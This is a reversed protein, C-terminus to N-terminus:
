PKQNNLLRVRQRHNGLHLGMNKQCNRLCIGHKLMSLMRNFPLIKNTFTLGSLIGIEQSIDFVLGHRKQDKDIWGYPPLKMTAIRLTYKDEAEAITGSTLITLILILGLPIKNFQM